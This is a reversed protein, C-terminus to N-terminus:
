DSKFVFLRRLCENGSDHCSIEKGLMNLYLLPIDKNEAHNGQERAAVPGGERKGAM